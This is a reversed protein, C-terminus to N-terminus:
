QVSGITNICGIRTRGVIFFVRANRQFSFRRSCIGDSTWQRQWPWITNVAWQGEGRREVACCSFRSVLQRLSLQLEKIYWKQRIVILYVTLFNLELTQAWLHLFILHIYIIYVIWNDFLTSYYKLVADLTCTPTYVSTSNSQHLPRIYTFHISSVRICHLFLRVWNRVHGILTLLFVNTIPSWFLSFFHPM